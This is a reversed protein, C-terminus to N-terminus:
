QRPFKELLAEIGDLDKMARKYAGGARLGLTSMIRGMAQIKIVNLQQEIALAAQIQEPTEQQLAGLRKRLKSLREQILQKKSKPAPRAPSASAKPSTSAAPSKVVGAQSPPAPAQSKGRGKGEEAPQDSGGCGALSGVLLALWIWERARKRM